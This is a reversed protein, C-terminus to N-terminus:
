GEDVLALWHAFAPDLGSSVDIFRQRLESTVPGPAGEGIPQGDISEVPWVGATTGTLFAEAADGLAAPALQEEHVKRGDHEAIEIVSRRTV